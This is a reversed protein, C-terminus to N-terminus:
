RITYAFVVIGISQYFAALIGRNFFWILSIGLLVGPVLFPLWLIKGLLWRWTLLSIVIVFSAAVAAFLFSHFCAMQGAALAPLFDSWTKESSALQWFPLAVSFFITAVAFFGSTWFWTAGLQRRFIKASVSNNKWQWSIRKSRFLFLILLPALILPWSIQLAKKYDFTTNFNVWIEAPFVKVQLISPVAFNNLALIFTILAAQIVATRALPFLLWRILAFGKLLPDNELQSIELRQLAASVSFFTIPWTMLTLIWITGGLSFINLPLWNRWIGTHGLFHLWCNTVLFPPLALAIIACFLIFKRSTSNLANFWLAVLFGITVSFFTTFVSVLLSNEILALNM